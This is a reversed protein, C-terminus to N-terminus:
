ALMNISGTAFQNSQSYGRSYEITNSFWQQFRSKNFDGAGANHNGSDNQGTNESDDGNMMQEKASDDTSFKNETSVIDIRKLQIGSESLSKIIDPMAQEIEAKTEAKSVQLTGSLESNKESFKITVSGLEPPNLHVTIQKEGSQSITSSQISETIHKSIQTSLDNGSNEKLITASVKESVVSSIEQTENTQANTFAQEVLIKNDEPIDVNNDSLDSILDNAIGSKQKLSDDTGSGSSDFLNNNEQAAQSINIESEAQQNNAQKNFEQVNQAHNKMAQTLQEGPKSDGILEEIKSKGESIIDSVVEEQEQVTNFVDKVEPLNNKDSVPESSIQEVNNNSLYESVNQTKNDETLPKAEQLGEAQAPVQELVNEKNTNEPLVNKIGLQGEEIGDTVKIQKSNVENGTEINFQNLLSLVDENEIENQETIEERPSDDTVESKKNVQDNEQVETNCSEETGKNEKEANKDTKNNEVKSKYENNSKTDSNIKDKHNNSRENYNDINKSENDSSSIESTNREPQIQNEDISFRKTGTTDCNGSVTRNVPMIIQGINTINEIMNKYIFLVLEIIYSCYVHWYNLWLVCARELQNCILCKRM